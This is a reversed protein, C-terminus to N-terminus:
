KHYKTGKAIELARYIQEVMLLRTMQHTLTLPSLSILPLQKMEPPLGEAGGIIITLRSGSLEFQKLLFLSFGESTMLQGKPDLAIKYAEKAALSMLQADDKAWAFELSLSPKLRKKYEDLALELWEEKTKGVSLIKLKIM